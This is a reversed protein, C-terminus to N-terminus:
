TFLDLTQALEADLLYFLRTLGIQGMIRHTGSQTNRCDCLTM